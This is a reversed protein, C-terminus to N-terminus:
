NTSSKKIILEKKLPEASEPNIKTLYKFYNKRQAIKKLMSRKAPIDKHNVKLHEIVKRINEELAILQVGTSGTDASHLRYKETLKSKEFM